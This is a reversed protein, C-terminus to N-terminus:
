QQHQSARSYQRDYAKPSGGRKNTKQEYPDYKHQVDPM